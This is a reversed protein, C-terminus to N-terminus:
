KALLDSGTIATSGKLLSSNPTLTCSSQSLEEVHGLNYLM